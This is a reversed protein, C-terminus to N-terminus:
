FIKFQLYLQNEIFIFLIFPIKRIKELKEKKEEIKVQKARVKLFLPGETSSNPTTNESSHM